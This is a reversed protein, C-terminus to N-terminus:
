RSEKTEGEPDISALFEAEELINKDGRYHANMYVPVKFSVRSVNQTSKESTSGIGGGVEGGVKSGFVEIEAKVGGKGDRETSSSETVTLAVDFEVYSKDTLREGHLAGPNIAWVDKTAIKANQIGFAIDTLTDKIFDRLKM